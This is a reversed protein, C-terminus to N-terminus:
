FYLSLVGARKGRNFLFDYYEPSTIQIPSYIKTNIVLNFVHTGESVNSRKRKQLVHIGQGAM